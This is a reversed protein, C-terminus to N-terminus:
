KRIVVSVTGQDDTFNVKVKKISIKVVYGNSLEGEGSYKFLERAAAKCETLSSTELEVNHKVWWPYIIGPASYSGVLKCEGAFSSFSGLLMLGLMLKKM